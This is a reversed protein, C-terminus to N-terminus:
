QLIEEFSVEFVNDKFLTKESNQIFVGKVNNAIQIVILPYKLSEVNM